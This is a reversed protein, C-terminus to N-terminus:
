PSEKKYQQLTTFAGLGILGTVATGFDFTSSAAFATQAAEGLCAGDFLLTAFAVDQPPMIHVDVTMQPRVILITQPQWDEVPAVIDQQHAGWISGVPHDSRILSVSPHPILQLNPLAEPAMGALTGLDLAATDSAHYAKTWAVEIRAVDALYVLSKAPPFAGIFDPFDDGYDIILPSAPKHDQAYSRAMALFFESGVLRETVPFRQALAKTLGVFVNNRYVSFRAADADGRATTIGQPVPHDPHQLAHAFASQSAAFDM